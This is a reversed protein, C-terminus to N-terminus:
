RVLENQIKVRKEVYRQIDEYECFPFQRVEFIHRVM